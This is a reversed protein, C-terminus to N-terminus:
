AASFDTENGPFNLNWISYDETGWHKVAGTAIPYMNFIIVHMTSNNNSVPGLM